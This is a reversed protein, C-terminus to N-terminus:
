FKRAWYKIITNTLKNLERDTKFCVMRLVSYMGDYMNFSDFQVSQWYWCSALGGM